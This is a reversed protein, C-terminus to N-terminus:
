TTAVGIPLASSMVSRASAINRPASTMAHSSV